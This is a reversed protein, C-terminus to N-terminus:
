QPREPQYLPDGSSEGDPRFIQAIEIAEPLQQWGRKGLSQELDIVRSFKAKITRGLALLRDCLKEVDSM